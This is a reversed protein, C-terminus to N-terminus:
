LPARTTPPGQSSRGPGPSTTRSLTWCRGASCFMSSARAPLQCVWHGSEPGALGAAAGTAAQSLLVRALAPWVGRM